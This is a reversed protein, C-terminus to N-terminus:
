RSTVVNVVDFPLSTKEVPVPGVLEFVNVGLFHSIMSAREALYVVEEKRMRQTEDSDKDTKGDFDLIRKLTKESVNFLYEALGGVTKEKKGLLETVRTCFLVLDVEVSVSVIATTNM